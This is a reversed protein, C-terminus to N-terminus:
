GILWDFAHRHSTSYRFDFKFREVRQNNLLESKLLRHRVTSSSSLKNFFKLYRHKVLFKTIIGSSSRFIIINLSLDFMM